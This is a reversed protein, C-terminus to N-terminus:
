LEYFMGEADNLALYRHLQINPAMKKVNSELFVKNETEILNRRFLLELRKTKIVQSANPLSSRKLWNLWAKSHSKWEAM